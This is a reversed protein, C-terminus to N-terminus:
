VSNLISGLKWMTLFRLMAIHKFSTSETQNCKPENENNVNVTSINISM